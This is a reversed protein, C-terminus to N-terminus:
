IENGRSADILLKTYFHQPNAIVRHSSGNEVIMGDHLVHCLAVRVQMRGHDGSRRLYIM